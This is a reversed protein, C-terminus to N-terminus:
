SAQSYRGARVGATASGRTECGAALDKSIACELRRCMTVADAEAITSFGLLLGPGCPYRIARSSLAEVALGAMQARTALATDSVGHDLWAILHMGGPQLDVTIRNGFATALANTLAQRRKAYLDRMRKVHRAFYGEQIFATVVRQEFTSHDATRYRLAGALAGLLEEPVVLYGLRLGPFIVKSFSGAYLVRDASDLSKLAPLPRSDYRFEGDYDDEVVFAGAEDAWSLLALRRPLSLAVGLPSQHSPTVVAIRAGPARAVGEAVRLGEADVIIPVLSAGMAEFADRTRHYCPDEIWVQDGPRLLVRGILDLAGQYGGTIVIQRATCLIGRAGALYAAIAERLPWYGAPDPYALDAASLARAERGALRSWLKRPFADLAPLGLQFPRIDGTADPQTFPAARSRTTLPASAPEAVGPSVITGLPGRAIVYGEGALIAYATDVTGRAIKLQRALQRASPLRNGPRLQGVAIAERFHDYIQRHLSVGGHTLLFGPDTPGDAM